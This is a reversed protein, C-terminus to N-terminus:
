RVAQRRRRWLHRAVAGALGLLTLLSIIWGARFGAPEYTMEVDHTGPPLAIGRMFFNVREIPTERGDVTAKWGPADIDNVVLMGRGRSAARIRVREDGYSTITASGARSSPARGRTLGALPKEAVLRRRGDFRPSTVAALAQDEGAVVQQAGVVWARPLARANAYIRADRRDYVLRLGPQRLPPDQPAQLVDAVGFLSLARLSRPNIPARQNHIVFGELKRISHQWLEDYRKEVPFDYGRADFLGYRMATNPTLPVTALKNPSDAGVFRAPARSQLYRIAPTVPQRAHEVPIAPNQGMGARFLDVTVLGFALVALTTAAVRGRVRLLVLALVCAAFATWTWVSSAIAIARADAGGPMDELALAVPLAQDFVRLPARGAILVAAGPLVVMATAAAVLARRARRSLDREMLEQLGWAALLAVCLLFIITMRTNHVSGFGPVHRVLPAIPRVGFVMIVAFVAMGATALRELNPRALVAYGALLLPLAGVYLARAVILGEFTQQTPRGFYDNLVLAIIFHNETAVAEAATRRGLEASGLVAELFPLIVIAALGVGLVLAGFWGAVPRVLPRWRRLGGPNLQALRLVLFALAIFLTHFTSEPHGGFFAFAVLAALGAVSLADPRRVMRDTLLCLWPIWAWVSSTPWPIWVIFFLGFGFILGALLAAEFRIAMARALLFTGFAALFVKLIAMWALSRYVDMVYAPLTFPSFIANQLNGLFVHGGMVHPNWLPLSQPLAAKDEEFFPLFQLSQDLTEYNSGLFSTGAPRGAEWPAASYLYDSGSLTKGPALAPAFLVLALLAYLAAATLVPRARM